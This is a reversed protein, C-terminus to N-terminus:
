LERELRGALERLRRIVAHQEDELPNLPLKRRIADERTLVVNGTEIYNARMRLSFAIDDIEAPGLSIKM